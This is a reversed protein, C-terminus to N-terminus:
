KLGKVSEARASYYYEAADRALQGPPTSTSRSKWLTTFHGPVTSKLTKFATLSFTNLINTRIAPDTEMILHSSPFTVVTSAQPWKFPGNKWFLLKCNCVTMLLLSVQRVTHGQV